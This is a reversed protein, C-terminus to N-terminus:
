PANGRWLMTALLAAVALAGITGSHTTDAVALSILTMGYGVLISLVFVGALSLAGLFADAIEAVNM